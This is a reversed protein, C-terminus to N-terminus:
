SRVYYNVFDIRNVDDNMKLYNPKTSDAVADLQGVTSLHAWDGGRRAIMEFFTTKIIQAVQLAETTDSISNVEDADMDNLIDQVMQLVTMKM